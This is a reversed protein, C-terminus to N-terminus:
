KDWNQSLYNQVTAFTLFFLWLCSSIDFLKFPCVHSIGFILRTLFHCFLFTLVWSLNSVHLFFLFSRSLFSPLSSSLYWHLHPSSLLHFCCTETNQLNDIVWREAQIFKEPPESSAHALALAPYLSALFLSPSWMVRVLHLTNFFLHIHIYINSFAIKKKRGSPHTAVLFEIM